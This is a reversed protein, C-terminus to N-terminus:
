TRPFSPSRSRAHWPLRSLQHRRSSIAGDRLEFVTLEPGSPDPDAVWYSPVGFKEYEAKKRNLDFLATSPSRIEVV